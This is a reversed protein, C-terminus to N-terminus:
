PNSYNRDVQQQVPITTSEATLTTSLSLYEYGLNQIVIRVDEDGFYDYTFEFSTGSSATGGLIVNSDNIFDIQSGTQLGTLTISPSSQPYKATKDVTTFITLADIYSTFSPGLAFTNTAVNTARNTVGSRIIEGPIFTGTVSSLRLTGVTGAAGNEEGDLVATAGSTIGNITEGIVFKSTRTSYLMFPVATLKIKLNFGIEPDPLTESTLNKPTAEKYAGYGAGTNIAYEVKLGYLTTLDNGLALGSAKYALKRFASIGYIKHPWTYEAYAGATGIYLRGSNSFKANGSLTYPPTPSASANFTLFLAGDTDGQYLENFITDYITTYAAAVGDTTTTIASTVATGSLPAHSGGSVGKCITNIYNNNLPLSYNNSRINQLILGDNNNTTGATGGFPYIAAVNNVPNTIDFDYLYNDNSLNSLTLIQGLAASGYDVNLNHRYFSNTSSTTLSYISLPVGASGGLAAVTDIVNGNSNALIFMASGNNVTTRVRNTDSPTFGSSTGMFIETWLGQFSAITLAVGQNSTEGANSKCWIQLGTIESAGSTVLTTTTPIPPGASSGANVTAGAVLISAGNLDLTITATTSTGSATHTVSIRQWNNTTTFAQSTAGFSISGTAATQPTVIDSRVYISFTYVMGNSTTVAQTTTRTAGTAALRNATQTLSNGAVFYIENPALTVTATATINTKTWSANSLTNSQLLLNECIDAASFTIDQEASETAPSFNLTGSVTGANPVDVTIATNSDISVVKAGDGVNTGFVYMGAVIGFTLSEDKLTSTLNNSLTLQQYSDVSVVTTGGPIGTGAVACGPIIGLSNFNTGVALLYPTGNEGACNVVTQAANFNNSTTITTSAGTGGGGAVAVRADYKRLVYYYTKGHLPSGLRNNAQAITTRITWAAGDPSSAGTTTAPTAGAVAFLNISGGIWAITDWYGDVITQSNWTAGDTSTTSTTGNHGVAAFVTGNWAVARWDGDTITRSTWTIGDPSTCSTTGNDGVAAFVTGNWAIANWRGDTITRSVWAIGDASTCSVTGNHGVVAFVTGNWAISKWDGKPMSRQTWTTGDPSTACFAGNNGVAVFVTGNWAVGAYNGSIITRTTWSTGNTSSMSVAANNGVAVFVTGGYAMAKWIGTIGTRTTWSTGNASSMAVTTNNGAAALITNGSDAAMCCWAGADIMTVTAATGNQYLRTTANRATFGQTLSRYIEYTVTAASPARQTWTLLGSDVSNQLVGLNQPHFKNAGLYPTASYERSEVFNTLDTWDRYSRTKFYYPTGDVMPANTAPDSGIRKTTTYSGCASFMDQSNTINTFTNDFSRLISVSTSPGYIEIDDFTCNRVSDSLYIGTQLTKITNLSYLRVNTFAADQTFSLGLLANAAATGVLAQPQGMAINLDNVVANSIYSWAIPLGFRGVRNQWVSSGFFKREPHIGLGVSTIVLSYSEAILPHITFGCNLLTCTQSQTFNNYSESFLAKDVIVNGGGTTLINASLIVSSTQLNVPTFDTICINPIRIKAGNPVVNGHVGDGFRITSTFQSSYPNYVTYTNPGASATTVLNLRLVTGSIIADVVSNVAIGTGSISAGPYVGATSTVTVYKSVGSVGGALSLPGYPAANADQTFFKGRAGSGVGSMNDSPYRPIDAYTATANLWVEYTGTGSGTEVWVCPIHETYLADFDQDATGDGTGIEIWNGDVEVTALGNVPIISNVTSGSGRGMAFVIPTTTSDNTILLRGENITITKLFKTQNTNVTVTAGANITLTDDSSRKFAADCIATYAASSLARSTWDSGDPSTALGTSTSQCIAVYLQLSECWTVAIWNGSLPLVTPTWSIGDTSTAAATGSSVAVFKGNGYTVGQWLATAPMTSAQWTAGDDTSYNVLDTNYAVAVFKGNGYAVATWNGAGTLTSATWSTGNTSYAANDTGGNDVAVYSGNGHAVAHWDAATPLTSASWAIGDTSYAGATSSGNSVAVFKGSGYCIARWAAASPLANSRVTWLINNNTTNTDRTGNAVAVVIQDGTGSPDGSAVGFWQNAATLNNTTATFTVGDITTLYTRSNFVVAGIANLDLDDINRDVNAVLAPM